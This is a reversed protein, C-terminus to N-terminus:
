LDSNPGPTAGVARPALSVGGSHFGCENYSPLLREEGEGELKDSPDLESDSLMKELGAGPGRGVMCGM